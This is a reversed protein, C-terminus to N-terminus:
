LSQTSLAVGAQVLAIHFQTSGTLVLPLDDRCNGTLQQAEDPGDASPCFREGILLGYGSLFLAFVVVEGILSFCFLESIFCM